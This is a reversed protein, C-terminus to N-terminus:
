KQPPKLQERLRKIEGSCIAMMRQHDEKTNAVEARAHVADQRLADFTMLLLTAEDPMLDIGDEACNALKNLLKEIM